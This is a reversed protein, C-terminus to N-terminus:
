PLDRWSWNNNRSNSILIRQLENWNSMRSIPVTNSWQIILCHLSCSVTASYWHDHLSSRLKILSSQVIASRPGAQTDVIIVNASDNTSLSFYRPLWMRMYVVLQISESVVDGTSNCFLMMLCFSPIFAFMSTWWPILSLQVCWCILEDGSLLQEGIKLDLSDIM